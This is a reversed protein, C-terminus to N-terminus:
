RHSRNEVGYYDIRFLIFLIQISSAPIQSDVDVVNGVVFTLVGLFGQHEKKFRKQDFVQVAISSANTVISNHIDSITYYLECEANWFPNLTQKDAVSTHTQEGNVTVVVFPDPQEIVFPSSYIM